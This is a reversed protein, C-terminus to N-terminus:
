YCLIKILKEDINDKYKEYSNKNIIIRNLNSCDYFLKRMKTEKKIDFTSLDINTLKSCGAFMENMNTVQKTDFSSLDINTLNSCDYFMGNMNTVQETNFFSLYINTLSSCRVFMGSMNTVQKTDFSSLNINTLKSCGAFMKSMDTVQKTDFSSLNLNTLNTCGFFMESMNTVQKTDFSSLDINTLQSCGAFMKSTNAVKNINLSSLNIKTLNTCGFFMASMNTIQNAESLSLDVNTLKSCGAFMECMNSVEKANFSSLDINALSSCGFFMGTCDNIHVNFILLIEYIGEKDPKFYKQYKYKKNNIYLEVNIDNLDKLSIHEYKEFNEINNKIENGKINEDIDEDSLFYIDKNIDEKGINILIKIENKKNIEKYINFINNYKEIYNGNNNINTIDKLINCNIIENINYLIEYNRENKNYNNIIYEEIKYFNDINDKIINLIKIKNQEEENIYDNKKMKNNMLLYNYFEIYVKFSDFSIKNDLDNNVMLANLQKLYKKRDNELYLILKQNNETDNKILNIENEINNIKVISEEYELKLKQINNEREKNEIKNNYDIIISEIFEALLGIEKSTEKTKYINWDNTPNEKLKIIINIINNGLNEYNAISIISIFDNKKICNKVEEWEIKEIELNKSLKLYIIAALKLTIAISNNDKEKKISKLSSIIKRSLIEINKRIIETNNNETLDIIQNSKKNINNKNEKIQKKLNEEKEKNRGIIEANKIIEEFKNKNEEIIKSYEKNKLEYKQKMENLINETQFIKQLINIINTKIEYIKENSDKKFNAFNNIDNIHNIFKNKENKLKELKSLLEKKDIMMNILSIKDHGEHENECLICINAKCNKCYNIYSENHKMCVYNIKDYNYVNHNNEHKNKCLPCLNINCEYCKYFENAKSKTNDCKGCKINELSVMQITEFQNFLLRYKNHNNKCIINLKYDYIEIRVNEFCIPCVIHNSKILNNKNNNHGIMDYVLVCMKKREKDISNAMQNFLLDNNIKSYQKGNYIFSIENEHINSKAMFKDFIDVMKQDETCQIISTIGNYQFEVQAM